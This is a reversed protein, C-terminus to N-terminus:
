TARICPEIEVDLLEGSTDRLVTIKFEIGTVSVGYFVECM